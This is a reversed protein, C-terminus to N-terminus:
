NFFTFFILPTYIPFLLLIVWFINLLILTKKSINKRKLFYFFSIFVIFSILFLFNSFDILFMEDSFCYEYSYETSNKCHKNIEFYSLFNNLIWILFIWIFSYFVKKNKSSFYTIPFIFIIFFLSIALSFQFNNIM